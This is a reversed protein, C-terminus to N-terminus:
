ASITVGRPTMVALRLGGARQALLYPLLKGSDDWPPSLPKSVFLVDPVDVPPM